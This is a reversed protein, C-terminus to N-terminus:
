MIYENYTCLSFLMCIKISEFIFKPECLLKFHRHFQWILAIIHQQWTHKHKHIKKNVCARVKKRKSKYICLHKRYVIDYSYQTDEDALHIYREEDDEEWIKFNFSKISDISQPRRKRAVCIMDHTVPLAALLSSFYSSCCSFSLFFFDKYKGYKKVIYWTMNEWWWRVIWNMFLMWVVCEIREIQNTWRTHTHTHIIHTIQFEWSRQNWTSINM